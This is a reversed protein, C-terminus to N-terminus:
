SFSSLSLTARSPRHHHFAKSYPLSSQILCLGVVKCLLMTPPMRMQYQYYNQSLVLFSSLGPVKVVLLQLLEMAVAQLATGLVPIPRTVQYLTAPFALGVIMMSVIMSVVMSVVM